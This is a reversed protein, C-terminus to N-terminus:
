SRLARAAEAKTIVGRSGRGGRGKSAKPLLGLKQLRKQQTKMRSAARAARSIANLDGGTLLPKRPPVWKREDKRLDKRNYCLGDRGLVMGPICRSVNRSQMVPVLAAGFRGIVAEGTSLVMGGGTVPGGPLNVCRGAVSWSGDPCQFPQSTPVLNGPVAGANGTQSVDGPILKARIYDNLISIGTGVLVDTISGGGANAGSGSTPPPLITPGGGNLSLPRGVVAGGRRQAYFDSLGPLGNPM